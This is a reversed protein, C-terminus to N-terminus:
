WRIMQKLLFFNQRRRDVRVSLIFILNWNRKSDAMKWEDGEVAIAQENQQKVEIM